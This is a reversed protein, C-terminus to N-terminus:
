KLKHDRKRTPWTTYKLYKTRVAKKAADSRIRHKEENVTFPKILKSNRVVEDTSNIGRVLSILEVHKDIPVNDLLWRCLNCVNMSNDYGFSYITYECHECKFQRGM